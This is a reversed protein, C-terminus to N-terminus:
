RVLLVLGESLKTIFGVHGSSTCLTISDKEFELQSPGSLIEGLNYLSQESEIDWVKDRITFVHKAVPLKGCDIFFDLTIGIKLPPCLSSRPFQRGIDM